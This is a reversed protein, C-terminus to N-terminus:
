LELKLLIMDKLQVGNEYIPEPYNRVFFDKRIDFKEFGAQQYLKLQGASADGTGIILRRYGKKKARQAADILLTSGIGQRQYKVAVAINKIELSEQDVSQVAYVAILDSDHEYRLYRV